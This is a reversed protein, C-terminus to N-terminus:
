RRPRNLFISRTAHRLSVTGEPEFAPAQAMVAAFCLVPLAVLMKPFRM